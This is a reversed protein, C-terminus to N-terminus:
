LLWVTEWPEFGGHRQTTENIIREHSLINCATCLSSPAVGMAEAIARIRVPGEQKALFEWLRRFLHNKDYGKLYQPLEREAM